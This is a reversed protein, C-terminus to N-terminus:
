STPCALAKVLQGHQYCNKQGDFHGSITEQPYLIQWGHLKGDKKTSEAILDPGKYERSRTLGNGIPENVTTTFLGAEPNRTFSVNTAMSDAADVFYMYMGTPAANMENLFSWDNEIAKLAGVDDPKMKISKLVMIQRSPGVMGDNQFTGRFQTVADNVMVLESQTGKGYRTIWRTTTLLTVPGDPGAANCKGSLVYTKYNNFDEIYTGGFSEYMDQYEKYSMGRFFKFMKMPDVPCLTSAEATLKEADRGYKAFDGEFEKVIATLQPDNFDPNGAAELRASEARFNAAANSQGAQWMADDCAGLCMAILILAISQINKTFRDRM